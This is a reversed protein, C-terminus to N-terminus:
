DAVSVVVRRKRSKNDFDVLVIQQWAGLALQGEVMPISLSPGLLAARVHSFGNGDGWRENHMYDGDQPALREIAAKLDAVAGPEYEITTIAATSGPIFLTVIGEYIDAEELIEALRSTIDVVDCFGRTTISFSRHIVM